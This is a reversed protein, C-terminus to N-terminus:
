EVEVVVVNKKGVRLVSESLPLIVDEVLKVTDLTVAGGAILRRAESKSKGFQRSIVDVVTSGNSAQVRPFLSLDNQEFIAEAQRVVDDAAAVGHVTMVVMHALMKKAENIGKTLFYGINEVKFETFLLFFQTVLNDDINRFFQFLEFPSTMEGNLWVPKGSTKGIKNGASDTLLPTTFAHATEGDLKHILDVGNIINGWQDSGGIQMNIGQQHLVRFDVAQMLMYCFELFTLPQQRDLRRKVSEFSMMRNITFHPGYESLFDIFSPERGFWDANDVFNIDTENGLVRQIVTKIGVRNQEITELPLVPRQTDKGSPDGIKTTASGLLITVHNGTKLLWRAVMLQILSGVHLSPATLDFGIYAHIANAGLKSMTTEDTIDRIFGRERMIQIFTQAM